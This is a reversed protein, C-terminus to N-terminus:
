PTESRFKTRVEMIAKGLLNQGWNNRPTKIAQAETLGIGWIKDYPSAEVIEREETDLLIKKLAADQSFQLYNSNAVIQSKHEDWVDEDFGKLARGLSRIKKPDDIPLILKDLIQLNYSRHAGKAFLLAKLVMMWKERSTFTQKDIYKNWDETTIISTLDHVSTAGVFDKKYWQCFVHRWKETKYDTDICTWFYITTM